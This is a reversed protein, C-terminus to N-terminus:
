LGWQDLYSERKIVQKKKIFPESLLNFGHRFKHNTCYFWRYIWAAPLLWPKGDIWSYWPVLQLDHYPPFLKYLTLRVATMYYTGSKYVEKATRSAENDDNELGFLGDRFVKNQVYECFEENLESRVFPMQVEFWKECLSFCRVTFDYLEIRKLEEEIWRWEDKHVAVPLTNLCFFTMDLFARFGIGKNIIHKATHVMMYIFHIKSDPYYCYGNDTKQATKWVADFYNKYDTQTTLEEYFMRNHVEFMLHPKTYTWVAHNDIMRNYGLNQMIQDAKKCDYPHILIDRDGMTRLEPHPYSNRIIIGKFPLYEIQNDALQAEIEHMAYDTNVSLYADTLFGDSLFHLVSSNFGPIDKCQYYVIGCLDQDKAYLYLRHLHIGHNPIESKSQHVYDRLIRIFYKQETKDNRDTM